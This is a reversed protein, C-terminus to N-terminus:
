LGVARWARDVADGQRKGAAVAIQRTIRACDAFRSNNSLQRLAQYWIPGAGEWANGGIERAALVFARNAIGSNLHVGGNDQNGKYRKAYHAPQPDDGLHPDGAYAKGPEAMDRIARRTPAPVLVDAGILWSARAASQKRRWQDILAGFVDAFHENLAGSEGSYDLNSEFSQVGHTLEHGVVDRARTFRRFVVGDGDGYAMQRGDWFANDLPGGSGDGVHVSSVLMLNRDDLSARKFIKWYFDYVDGSFRYAEEVAPDGTSKEGESRVLKGPLRAGGQADYVARRLKGSPENSVGLQPALAFVERRARFAGAASLNDIAFERVRQDPSKALRRLLYPPVICM